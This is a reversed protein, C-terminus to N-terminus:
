NRENYKKELFDVLMATANPRAIDDIAEKLNKIRTKSNILLGLCLDVPFNKESAIACGMNTLFSINSEEMGPLPDYTIIPLRKALAESVTIGGPKTVICDAASMLLEVRNSYGLLHMENKTKVQQMDKYLSENSGCVVIFQINDFRRDMDQVCRSIKGYGMGGSMVLVCFKDRSYGLQRRAQERTVTVSFKSDIPIGIPLIRRRSIGRSECQQNLLPSYTVIYDIYQTNQWYIQVTFDTIIACTLADTKKEQKLLSIVGAAYVQTCIIIDPATQEIHEALAGALIDNQLDTLVHAQPEANENIMYLGNALARVSMAGKMTYYYAMEMFNKLHPSIYEYLDLIECEVSLSDYHKKLARACSNHGNGLPATIILVKM